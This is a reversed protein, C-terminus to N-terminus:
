PISVFIPLSEDHKLDMRLSTKSGNGITLSEAAGSRLLLKAVETKGSRAAVHLATDGSSNVANIKKSYFM